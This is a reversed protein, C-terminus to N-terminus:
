RWFLSELARVASDYGEVAGHEFGAMWGLALGGGIAIVGFWFFAAVRGLFYRAARAARYREIERKTMARSSDGRLPDAEIKKLAARSSAVSLAILRAVRPSVGKRELALSTVEPGFGLAAIKACLEVQRELEGHRATEAIQM